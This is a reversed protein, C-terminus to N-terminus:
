GTGRTLTYFKKVSGPLLFPQRYVCSLKEAALYVKLTITNILSLKGSEIMYNDKSRSLATTIVNIKM